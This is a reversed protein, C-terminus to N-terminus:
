ELYRERGEEEEGKEGRECISCSAMPYPIDRPAAPILQGQQGEERAGM